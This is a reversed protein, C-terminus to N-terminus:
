EPRPLVRILNLEEESLIKCSKMLNYKAWLPQLNTYYCLEYVDEITKASSLPIIHDIHIYQGMLEWSMGETFLNEIHTKLTDWDCGLLKNTKSNKKFGNKTFAQLTLNRITVTLKFHIDESYKKRHRENIREKISNRYEKEKGNDRRKDRTKKREKNLCTICYYANKRNHVEFSKYTKFNKDTLPLWEDCKSCKKLNENKKYSCKCLYCTKVDKLKSLRTTHVEEVNGCFKCEYKFWRRPYPGSKIYYGSFEIVRFIETEYGLWKNIYKKHENLIKLDTKNKLKSSCDNCVHGYPIIKNDLKESFENLVKIKYCKVCKIVGDNFRKIKLQNASESKITIM